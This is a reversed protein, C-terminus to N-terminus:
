WKGPNKKPIVAISSTVINGCLTPDLPGVMYGSRVQNHLFDRVVEPHARASLSNSHRSRCQPHQQLGTRFGDSLGSLLASVWPRDPHPALAQRWAEPQLPTRVPASVLPPRPHGHPAPYPTPRVTAPLVPQGHHTHSLHHQDGAAPWHHSCRLPPLSARIYGHTSNNDSVANLPICQPGAAINNVPCCM